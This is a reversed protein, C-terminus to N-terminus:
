QRRYQRAMKGAVPARAIKLVDMELLNRERKTRRLLNGPSGRERKQKQFHRHWFRLQNQELSRGAAPPPPPSSHRASEAKIGEVTPEVYITYEDGAERLEPINSAVVRAGCSRAELVPMGFGEYLSPFVLASSLAYLLPMLEDPVYGALVLGHARAAGLRETLKRSKWGTPGALVLQYDKLNGKKELQTFAALVAVLNKRPEPTAM